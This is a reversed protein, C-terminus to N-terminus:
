AAQGHVATFSAVAVVVYSCGCECAAREVEDLDAVVVEELAACKPDSCIVEVIWM